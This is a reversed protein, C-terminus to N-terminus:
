IGWDMPTFPQGAGQNFTGQSIASGGGPPPSGMMSTPPMGMAMQGAGMALNMMNGMGAQRAQGAGATGQAQVGAKQMMLDALTGQGADQNNFYQLGQLNQDVLGQLVGQNSQALAQNANGSRLGGTASANRMVGQEGIGRLYDYQPSQAAQNYMDSSGNMFYNSLMDRAQTQNQQIPDYYDGLYREAQGIGAMQQGSAKQIADAATSGTLGGGVDSLFGM